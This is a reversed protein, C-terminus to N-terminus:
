PLFYYSPRSASTRPWLYRISCLWRSSPKNVDGYVYIYVRMCQFVCASVNPFLSIQLSPLPRLRSVTRQKRYRLGVQVREESKQKEQKRKVSELKKVSYGSTIELDNEAM